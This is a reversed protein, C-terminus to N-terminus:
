RCYFYNKQKEKDFHSRRRKCTPFDVLLKRASKTKLFLALLVPWIRTGNFEAKDGHGQQIFLGICVKDDANQLQSMGIYPVAVPMSYQFVEPILILKVADTCMIGIDSLEM